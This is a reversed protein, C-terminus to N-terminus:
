IYTSCFSVFNNFRRITAINHVAWLYKPPKQYNCSFPNKDFILLSCTTWTRTWIIFVNVMSYRYFVACDNLMLTLNAILVLATNWARNTPCHFIIGRACRQVMEFIWRQAVIKPTLIHQTCPVGGGYENIKKQM